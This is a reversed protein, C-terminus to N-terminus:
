EINYDLESLEDMEFSNNTPKKPNYKLAKVFVMRAQAAKDQAAKVKAANVDSAVSLLSVVLKSWAETYDSKLKNSRAVKTDSPDDKKLNDVVKVCEEKIKEVKDKLKEYSNKMESLDDPSELTKIISELSIEKFGKIEKKEAKGGRLDKFLAEAFKSTSSVEIGTLSKFFEVKIESVESSTDKLTELQKEVEEEQSKFADENASPDLKTSLTMPLQVGKNKEVWGKLDFSEIVAYKAKLNNEFIYGEFVFDKYEKGNLVDKKYKSVLQSGSMRLTNIMQVIKEIISKIFAIIRDFLAKIKEKVTGIISETLAVLESDTTNVACAAELLTQKRIFDETEFESVAENIVVPLASAMETLSCAIPTGAPAFSGGSSRALNNLIGM